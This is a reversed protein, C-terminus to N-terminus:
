AKSRREFAQLVLRPLVLVTPNRLDKLVAVLGYRLAKGFLRGSAAHKAAFAYASAERKRRLRAIRSASLAGVIGPESFVRDIAALTLQLDSGLTRVLSSKRLRYQLLPGEGIYYFEGHLALQCWMHWDENIKHNYFGALRQLCARRVCSAGNFLFNGQLLTELVRGSPRPSYRPRKESGIIEGEESMFIEDGYAVCAQPHALLTALLRSLAAPRMVDDADFFVIYQAQAQQLGSQRAAAPGANDQYRYHIRPDEYGKVLEATADSSGDDVVILEWNQHHQALVSDIAERIYAEANYAPMIVSLQHEELAAASSM